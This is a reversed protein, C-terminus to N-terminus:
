ILHGVARERLRVPDREGQQALAIIRKAVALVAPDSRDVGRYAILRTVFITLTRM